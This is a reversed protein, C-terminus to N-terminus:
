YTVDIVRLRRRDGMKYKVPSFLSRIGAGVAINLLGFEMGGQTLRPEDRVVTYWLDGLFMSAGGGMLAGGIINSWARQRRLRIRSIDSLPTWTDGLLVLQADANLDMIQRKYWGKDDEKLQFTLEEFVQIRETRPNGAKEILLIKQGFASTSLFSILLLCCEIATNRKILM